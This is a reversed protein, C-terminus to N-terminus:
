GDGCAEVGQCDARCGDGGVLNGDTDAIYLAQSDATHGPTALVEFRLADPVLPQPPRLQLDYLEYRRERGIHLLDRFGEIAEAADRAQQLTHAVVLAM